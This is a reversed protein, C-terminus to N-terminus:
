VKCDPNKDGGLHPWIKGGGWNQLTNGKRGKLLFCDEREKRRIWWQSRIAESVKVKKGGTLSPPQQNEKKKKGREAKKPTFATIRKKKSGRM